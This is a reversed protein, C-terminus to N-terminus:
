APDDPVLEALIDDLKDMVEHLPLNMSPVLISLLDARAKARQHKASLAPPPDIRQIERNHDVSLAIDLLDESTQADIKIQRAKEALHQPVVYTAGPGRLKIQGTFPHESM